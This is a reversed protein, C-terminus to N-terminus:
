EDAAPQSRPKPAPLPTVEVEETVERPFSQDGISRWAGVVVGLAAVVGIYLGIERTVEPGGSASSLYAGEGQFVSEWGPVDLLRLLVLIAAVLAVPVTLAGVAQPVAPSRQTAAAVALGIGFLAALALFVDVVTFAEWANATTAGAVQGGPLHVAYWDLFMSVLLVAGSIGAIWEGHRV